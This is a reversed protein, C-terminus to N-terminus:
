SSENGEPTARMSEVLALIAGKAEGDRSPPQAEGPRGSLTDLIRFVARLRDRGHSGRYGRDLRAVSLLVQLCEQIIPHSEGHLEIAKSVASIAQVESDTSSTGQQAASFDPLEYDRLKARALELRRVQDTLQEAIEIYPVMKVSVGTGKRAEVKIGGEPNASHTKVIWALKAKVVRIEDDLNGLLTEDYCDKEEDTLWRRYIGCHGNPGGRRRDGRPIRAKAGGHYHCRM